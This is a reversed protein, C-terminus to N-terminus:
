RVFAECFIWSIQMALCQRKNYCCHKVFQWSFSCHDESETMNNMVLNRPPLPQSSGYSCRHLGSPLLFCQFPCIIVRPRTPTQARYNLGPFMRHVPSCLSLELSMSSWFVAGGGYDIAWVFFWSPARKWTDMWRDTSKNIEAKMSTDILKSLVKSHGGHETCWAGSFCPPYSGGVM